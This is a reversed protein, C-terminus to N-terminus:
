RAAGEVEIHSGTLQRYVDDLTPTRLTLSRVGLKSRGLEIAVSSLASTSDPTSVIVRRDEMWVADVMELDLLRDIAADDAGDVEVV